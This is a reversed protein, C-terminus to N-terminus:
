SVSPQRAHAASEDLAARIRELLIPETFPKPVFYTRPPLRKGKTLSEDAYGSIYIAPLDPTLARLADVLEPGNGGPMMVDTVVLDIDRADAALARAEAASSAVITHYGRRTLWSTVLARISADDEVLLIGKTDDIADGAAHAPTREIAPEASPFYIEFSTGRNPGTDVHIGGSMQKVIGYVTSLGLGTGRGTAKTTFFPEFMRAQVAPEIGTGEDSVVLTAYRGTELVADGVRREADLRTEATRIVLRGGHPMADRANVALNLVIQEIQTPCAIIWAEAASAEFTLQAQGDLVRELMPMLEAVIPTLNVLRPQVVERRSFALLRQTLSTARDGIRRIAALYPDLTRDYAPDTEISAAYGLVGTLLNNFDHAVGGALQGVAEMKQAQQLRESMVRRETEDRTVVVFGDRGEIDSALPSITTHGGFRTGDKRLCECDLAAHGTDRAQDLLAGIRTPGASFLSAAHRGVMESAAYGFIADAGAKWDVVMGARDLVFVAYDTISQLIQGFRAESERLKTEALHAVHEQEVEVLRGHELTAATHQCLVTVHELDDDPCLSGHRQVILLVGWRRGTSVIPIAMVTRGFAGAIAPIAGEFDAPAGVVPTGRSLARGILGNAPRVEVHSWASQNTARVTLVEPRHADFMLVARAMSAVGCGAARQLDAAAERVRDAPQRAAMDRVHRYLERQAWIARLPRPAVLGAYYSAFVGLGLIQRVGPGYAAFGPVFSEIGVLAAIAVQLWTGLAAYWLRAGTV